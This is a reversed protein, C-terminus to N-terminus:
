SRTGQIPTLFLIAPRRDHRGAISNGGQTHRYLTRKVKQGQDNEMEYNEHISKTNALMSGFLTQSIISDISKEKNQSVWRTFESYLSNTFDNHLQGDIVKSVLWKLYVPANLARVDRYAETIPINASFEAPTKYTELTLLYQYFAWKVDPNGLHEALNNFYKVDGRKVPNTDYVSIRRNGSRIPLSNRDNTTSIYNSYDQVKYQSAYKKNINNTKCTIRSKLINNNAPNDKGSAEEVLVLLKGEFQSNFNGYLEKNDGVVICYEDGIIHNMIFEIFLNKGTGGGEDLLNGMDRILAAVESKRGPNQIMNALLKMVFSCDGSCLLDTHDLIPKVLEMITEKTMPEDPEHDLAKFGKFLNYVSPPCSKMDPCFDVRDYELRTKDKTWMDFFSKREIKGLDSNWVNLELPAFKADKVEMTCNQGDKMIHYLSTGVVFTHQEFEKKMREYVDDEPMKSVWEYEIAKETLACPIGTYKEVEIAGQELLEKPFCTEKEMKEVYGGDHIFVGMYRKNHTLFADWVMLMKREETQFLLSM